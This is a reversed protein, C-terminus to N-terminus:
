GHLGRLAVRQNLLHMLAATLLSLLLYLLMLITICEIARGSQNLTTGAVSVLDPYGVAVALSSNKILNLYQNALPPVIVRLALPLTIWRLVQPRRLGLSEAAEIQGRPVAAIGARVVEAVYAATYCVLGLLLALYEPSLLLGGEIAFGDLQPLWHGDAGPWPLAVGTKGLALGLPGARPQEPLGEVLLLYWLLLQVLLPVNRFLEVWARCLGRLLPHLSFRGIGLLGGCLTCLLLGPLAVRLTNLLGVLLARALTDAPDFDILHESIDFGATQLLFDWGSPIGRETLHARTNHVLGGLLLGLLALLLLQWAWARWRAAKPRPPM